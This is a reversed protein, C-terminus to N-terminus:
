YWLYVDMLNGDKDFVHYCWSDGGYYLEIANFYDRHNYFNVDPKDKAMLMKYEVGAKDYMACLTEFDSM